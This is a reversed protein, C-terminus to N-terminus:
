DIRISYFTTAKLEPVPNGTHSAFLLFARIRAKRKRKPARVKKSEKKKASGREKKCERERAQFHSFRSGSLAFFDRTGL